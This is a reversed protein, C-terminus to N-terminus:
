MEYKDFQNVSHVNPHWKRHYDENDGITIWKENQKVSQSDTM